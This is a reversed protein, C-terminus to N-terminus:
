ETRLHNMSVIKCGQKTFAVVFEVPVSEPKADNERVVMTTQVIKRTDRFEVSLHKQARTWDKKIEAIHSQRNKGAPSKDPPLFLSEAKEVDLDYVAAVFDALLTEVPDAALNEREADQAVAVAVFVGCLGAFLFKFTRRM